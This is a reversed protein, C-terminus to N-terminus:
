ADTTVVSAAHVDHMARIRRRVRRRQSAAKAERAGRQRELNAREERTDIELAIREFCVRGWPHADTPEECPIGVAVTRHQNNSCRVRLTKLILRREAALQELRSWSRRIPSPTTTTPSAPIM